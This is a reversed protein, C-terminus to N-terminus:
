AKFRLKLVVKAGDTLSAKQDKYKVVEIFPAGVWTNNIVGNRVNYTPKYPAILPINDRFANMSLESLAVPNLDEKWSYRYSVSLQPAAITSSEGDWNIASLPISVPFVGYYKTWFIVTEFDEATVIVYIAIPYDLVKNQIYTFNPTWKGKYVNVIYDVWLKHLNLIDFNRTDRYNISLTGGLESDRRRGYAISYGSMSKGHSESNIGDDTLQFGKAKNSLLMMFQHDSGNNLTLQKLLGPNRSNIYKVFPDAKIESRLGQGVGKYLNCDPRTFFIHMYGRSLIDDPNALKFRNYSDMNKRINKRISDVDYKGLKHITSLDSLGGSYNLTYDYKYVPNKSNPYDAIPPWNNKPNQIIAPGNRAIEKKYANLKSNAVYTYVTKKKGDVVVTKKKRLYDSSNIGKMSTTTTPLKITGGSRARMMGAPTYPKITNKERVLTIKDNDIAGNTLITSVSCDTIAVNTFNNRINKYVIYGDSITGNGLNCIRAWINGQKDTNFELTLYIRSGPSVRLVEQKKDTLSDFIGLGRRCQPIVISEACAITSVKKEDYKIFEGSLADEIYYDGNMETEPFYSVICDVDRLSAITKSEMPNDVVMFKDHKSNRTFKYLLM